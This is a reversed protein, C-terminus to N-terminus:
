CLGLSEIAGDCCSTRYINYTQSGCCSICGGKNHYPFRTPFEGCCKTAIAELNEYESCKGPGSSEKPPSAVCEAAHDFGEGLFLEPTFSSYSDSLDRALMEDCSCISAACPTNAACTILKSVNDFGVEYPTDDIQCEGGGDMEACERCQRWNKFSQDIADMPKGHGAIDPSKLQGWCGYNFENTFAYDTIQQGSTQVYFALIQAIGGTRAREGNSTEGFMEKFLAQGTSKALAAPLIFAGIKM